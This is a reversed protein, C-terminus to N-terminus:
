PTVAVGAPAEAIIIDDREANSAEPVSHAHRKGSTRLEHFVIPKLLGLEHPFVNFQRPLHHVDNLKILKNFIADDSSFPVSETKEDYSNIADLIGDVTFSAKYKENNFVMVGTTFIGCDLVRAALMEAPELRELYSIDGLVVTDNDMYISYRDNTFFPIFLKGLCFKSHTFSSPLNGVRELIPSWDASEDDSISVINDKIRVM